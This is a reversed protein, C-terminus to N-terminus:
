EPSIEKLISQNSKRATWPVRLLRRWCRPQFADTKWSEAKKITWTECGCMVVPFVMAKVTPVETLLTVPLLSSSPFPQSLDSSYEWRVPVGHGLCTAIDWTLRMSLQTMRLEDGGGDQQEAEKDKQDLCKGGQNSNLFGTNGYKVSECHMPIAHENQKNRGRFQSDRSTLAGNRLTNAWQTGSM